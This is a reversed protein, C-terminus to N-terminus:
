PSIHPLGIPSHAPLSVRWFPTKPHAPPTEDIPFGDSIRRVEKRLKHNTLLGIPSGRGTKSPYLFPQLQDSSSIIRGRSTNTWHRRQSRPWQKHRQTDLISPTHLSAMAITLRCTHISCTRPSAHKRQCLAQSGRKWSVGNRWRGDERNSCRTV